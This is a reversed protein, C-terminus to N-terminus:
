DPEDSEICQGDGHLIMRVTANLETRDLSGSLQAGEVSGAPRACRACGANGGLEGTGRFNARGAFKVKRRRFGTKAGM